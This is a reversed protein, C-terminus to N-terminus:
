TPPLSPPPYRPPRARRYFLLTTVALVAAAAVAGGLLLELSSAPLLGSGAGVPYLAILLSTSTGGYITVNNFYPVYGAATAEVSHLGPGLSVSFSGNSQLPVGNGDVWLLVGTTPTVRGVLGGLLSANSFRISVTENRNLVVVGASPSAAYGPPPSVTFNYTASALAVPGFVPVNGLDFWSGFQNWFTIAWFGGAPLDTATFTLLHIPYFELLETTNAGNVELAVPVPIQYTDGISRATLYYDGSPWSESFTTGNSVEYAYGTPTQVLVEWPTGAPLGTEEFTVTWLRVGLLPHYDGGVAIDGDATYPLVWYPDTSDGYDWWYNGGLGSGGAINIGREPTINWRADFPFRPPEGTYPDMAPEVATLDTGFANNYVLDRCDCGTTGAGGNGFDAEFLGTSGYVAAAISGEDAALPAYGLFSNGEVTNNTGGYLYLAEDGTLFTDNAVTSGSTNWLVVSAQAGAPGLYSGAFWWGGIGTAGVVTVTTDQLAIIPLDNSEPTGFRLTQNELWVPAVVELAPASAVRAGSVNWLLIGPFEPFFFDNFNGFWPFVVGEGAPGGLAGSEDNLLTCGGIGCSSSINALDTESLAWLPTYVGAAPDASLSVNLWDSGPAVVFTTTTPAFHSALAEVSYAGPSVTYPGDPPLWQFSAQAPAIGPALFVFGNEPALRLHLVGSGQTSNSVNWEGEVFSPGQSLHSAPGPPGGLASDAAATWTSALGATTEGTDGGVDFASPVVRFAASGSDWYYLDMAASAHFADFNSGGGPGGIVFEFDNPLGLPNLAYGDARYTPANTGGGPPVPTSQFVLEDYSGAASVTANSVTYNFFVVDENASVSANLFLSLRFPYGVPIAPGLAYYYTTGVQTGNPGHGLLANTSLLGSANSFNWLNDVLYLEHSAPSYEAVNQTWFAYSSNGFLTVGQLVANLQVAYLDPGDIGLSLGSFQTPAFTGELRSTTLNAPVLGGSRNVVGFDAVGIPAPAATYSSSVPGVGVSSPSQRQLNPLFAYRLPVGAARIKAVTSVLGAPPV